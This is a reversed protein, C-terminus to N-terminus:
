KWWSHFTIHRQFKWRSIAHNRDELIEIYTMIMLTVLRHKSTMGIRQTNKSEYVQIKNCFSKVIHHIDCPMTQNASGIAAKTVCVCARLYVKFNGDVVIVYWAYVGIIELVSDVSTQLEWIIFVIRYNKICICIKGQVNRYFYGQDNLFAKTWLRVGSIPKVMLSAVLFRVYELLSESQSATILFWTLIHDSAFM